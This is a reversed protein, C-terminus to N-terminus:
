RFYQFVEVLSCSTVDLLLKNAINVTVLVFRTLDLLICQEHLLVAKYLDRPIIQKSNLLHTIVNSNDFWLKACTFYM